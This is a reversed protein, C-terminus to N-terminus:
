TRETNTFKRRRITHEQSSHHVDFATAYPIAKHSGKTNEAKEKTM